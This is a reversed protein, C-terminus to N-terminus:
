DVRVTLTGSLYGTGRITFMNNVTDVSEIEYDRKPVKHWGGGYRVKIYKLGELDGDEDTMLAGKEDASIRVKTNKKNLEIPTIDYTFKDGGAVANIEATQQKLLAIESQTKKLKGALEEDVSFVVTFYPSESSDHGTIGEEFADENNYSVFDATICPETLGNLKVSATASLEKDPMIEKGTYEAARDYSVSIYASTGDGSGSLTFARTREERLAETKETVTLRCSASLGSGRNRATIVANGPSRGTIEGDRVEAVAPDSSEWVVSTDDAEPPLVAASLMASEGVSVTYSSDSILLRDAFIEGLDETQASIVYNGGYESVKDTFSGSGNRYFSQGESLGVSIGNGPIEYDVTKKGGNVRVVISFSTGPEVTVPSALRLTYIGGTALEGKLAAALKGSEPDKAEKLGNYIRVEFSRDDGTMDTMTQFAVAKLEQTNAGEPVPFVNATEILGDEGADSSAFDHLNADYYYNHDLFESASQMKFVYAEQSLTKDEYSLWFYSDYSSSGYLLKGDEQWSNRCLWAGDGSPKNKGFNNRSYDDDWGVICVGHNPEKEDKCYYANNAPNYVADNTIGSNGSPSNYSVAAAGCAKIFRKVTDQDERINLLYCNEIRASSTYEVSKWDPSTRGIHSYRAMGEDAAGKWKFLTQAAFIENGGLMLLENESKGEYELYDGASDGYIPNTGESYSNHILLRESYDTNAPTRADDTRIMYSEALAMASFAWCSGYKGQSRTPSLSSSLFSNIQEVGKGGNYAAPYASQPRSKDSFVPDPSIEQWEASSETYETEETETVASVDGSQEAFTDVRGVSASFLCLSILGATIKYIYKM